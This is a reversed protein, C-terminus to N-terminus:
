PAAGVAHYSSQFYGSCPLQKKRAAQFLEPWWLASRQVEAQPGTATIPDRLAIFFYSCLLFDLAFLNRVIHQAIPKCLLILAKLLTGGVEEPGDPPRSSPLYACHYSPFGSVDQWPMQM